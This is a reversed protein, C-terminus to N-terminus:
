CHAQTNFFSKSKETEKICLEKRKNPFFMWYFQIKLHKGQQTMGHSLFTHSLMLLSPPVFRVSRYQLNLKLRVQPWIYCLLIWGKGQKSLKKVHVFRRIVRAISNSNIDSMATMYIVIVFGKCDNIM